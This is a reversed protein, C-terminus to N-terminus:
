ALPKIFYNWDMLMWQALSNISELILLSASLRVEKKIQWKFNKTEISNNHIYKSWM